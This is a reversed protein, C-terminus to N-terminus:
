PLSPKEDSIKEGNEFVTRRTLNGQPDYSLSTGHSKGDQNYYGRWKVQGNEHYTIMEGQKKGDVWPEIARLQGSPYYILLDGHVKGDAFPIIAQEQGSPYYRTWDGVRQGQDNKFYTEKLTGDDYRSEFQQHAGTAAATALGPVAPVSQPLRGLHLRGTDPGRALVLLPPDTRVERVLIDNITEGASKLHTQETQQDLIMAIASDQGPAPVLGVFDYRDLFLPRAAPLAPPTSSPAPQPTVTAPDTATVDPETMRPIQGATSPQDSTSRDCGALMLLLGVVGALCNLRLLKM